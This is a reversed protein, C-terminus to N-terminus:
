GNNPTTLYKIFLEQREEDTDGCGTLIIASLIIVLLPGNLYATFYKM